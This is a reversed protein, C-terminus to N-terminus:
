LKSEKMLSRLQARTIFIEDVTLGDEDEDEVIPKRIHIFAKSAGDSVCKLLEIVREIGEDLGIIKAEDSFQARLFLNSLGSCKGQKIAKHLSLYPKLEHQHQPRAKDSRKYIIDPGRLYDM